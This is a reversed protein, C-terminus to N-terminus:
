VGASAAAAPARRWGPTGRSPVPRADDAPRPPPAALHHRVRALLDEFGFTAKPILDSVKLEWAKTILQDRDDVGTLVVVPLDAWLASRRLMSLFTVGDMEPMMLDLLVMDPKDQYMIAWAEKGNKAKITRFGEYELLRALSERTLTTDDVVLISSM